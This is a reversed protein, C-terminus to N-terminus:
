VVSKRDITKSSTKLDGIVLKGNIEYLRDFTGTLKIKGFNSPNKYMGEPVDIELYRESELVKMTPMVEKFYPKFVRVAEQYLEKKTVKGVFEESLLKFEDNIAQVMARICLGLRCGQNCYGFDVGAHVAHGVITRDNAGYHVGLGQCLVYHLPNAMFSSTSSARHKWVPKISPVGSLRSYVANLSGLEKLEQPTM